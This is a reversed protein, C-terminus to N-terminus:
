AGINKYYGDNKIVLVNDYMEVKTEGGVFYSIAEKIENLSYKSLSEIVAGVRTIIPRKWATNYGNELVDNANMVMNFIFSNKAQIMEYVSKEM